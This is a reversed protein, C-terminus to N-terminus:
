GPAEGGQRLAERLRDQLRAPVPARPLLRTLRITLEYTTVLHGCPPCRCLHDRIRERHEPALEGGVFDILLDVLERCTMM